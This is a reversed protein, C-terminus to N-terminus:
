FTASPKAAPIPAPAPSDPAPPLLRGNTLWDVTRTLQGVAAELREVRDRLEDVHPGLRAGAPPPASGPAGSPLKLMFSVGWKPDEQREVEVEVNGELKDFTKLKEEIPAGDENVATVEYITWPKGTSSTGSKIATTEIITMKKLSV